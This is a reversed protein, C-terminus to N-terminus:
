KCIVQGGIGAECEYPRGPNSTPNDKKIGSSISVILFFLFASIFSRGVKSIKDSDDDTTYFALFLLIASTIGIIRRIEGTESFTFILLASIGAIAGSLKYKTQM